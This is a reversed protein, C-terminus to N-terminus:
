DAFAMLIFMLAIYFLPESFLIALADGMTKHEVMKSM